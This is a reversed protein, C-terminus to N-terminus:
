IKKLIENFLINTITQSNYPWKTPISKYLIIKHRKQGMFFRRLKEEEPFEQSSESYM